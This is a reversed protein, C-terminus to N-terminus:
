YTFFYPRAQEVPKGSPAQIPQGFTKGIKEKGSNGPTTPKM